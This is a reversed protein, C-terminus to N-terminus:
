LGTSKAGNKTRKGTGKNPKDTNSSVRSRTTKRGHSKDKYDILVSNGNYHLTYDAKDALFEELAKELRGTSIETIIKIAM